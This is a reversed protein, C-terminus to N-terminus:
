NEENEKLIKNIFRDCGNIKDSKYLYTVEGDMNYEAVYYLGGDKVVWYEMGGTYTCTLRKM